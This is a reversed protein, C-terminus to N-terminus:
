SVEVCEVRRATELAHAGDGIVEFTRTGVTIRDSSRVDTGAPFTVPFVTVVTLRGAIVRESAKGPGVRCAPTGAVAPTEIQGGMGDSVFTFRTITASEPLAAAQTARMDELDADSLM